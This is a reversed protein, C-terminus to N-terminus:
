FMYHMFYITYRYNKHTSKRINQNNKMTSKSYKTKYIVTIFENRTYYARIRIDQIVNEQRTLNRRRVSKEREEKCIRNCKPQYIQQFSM